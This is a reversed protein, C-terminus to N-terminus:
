KGIKQALNELYSAITSLTEAFKENENTLNQRDLSTLKRSFTQVQDQLSLASMVLLLEFSASPNTYKHELIKKDVEQALHILQQQAGEDCALQFNKNNLKITIVSM